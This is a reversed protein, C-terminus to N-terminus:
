LTEIHEVFLHCIHVVTSWGFQDFCVIVIFQFQVNSSKSASLILDLLNESAALLEHYFVHYFVYIEYKIHYELRM